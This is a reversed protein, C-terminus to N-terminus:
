KGVAATGIELRWDDRSFTARGLGTWGKPSWTVSGLGKWTM